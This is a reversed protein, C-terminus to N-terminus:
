AFVAAATSCRWIMEMFEHQEQEIIPLCEVRCIKHKYWSLDHRTFSVKGDSMENVSVVVTHTEALELQKVLGNLMSHLENPSNLPLDADQNNIFVYDRGLLQSVSVWELDITLSESTFSFHQPSVSPKIALQTTAM